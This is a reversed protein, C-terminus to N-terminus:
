QFRSFEKLKVLKSERGTVQLRNVMNVKRRQLIACGLINMYELYIIYLLEGIQFTRGKVKLGGGPPTASSGLPASVELM